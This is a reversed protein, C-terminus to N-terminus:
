GRKRKEGRVLFVPIVFSHFCNQGLSNRGFNVGFAQRDHYQIAALGISVLLVVTRFVFWFYGQSWRYRPLRRPRPRDKGTAFNGALHAFGGQQM